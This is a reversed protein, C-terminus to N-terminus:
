FGFFSRVDQLANELLEPNRIEWNSIKLVKWGENILMRDNKLTKYYSKEDALWIGNKNRVGYHSIDDIQIAYRENDWFAVFDVRNIDDAHLSAGLSLKSKILSHWQIWAQPILVPIDQTAM